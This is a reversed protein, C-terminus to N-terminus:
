AAVEAAEHQWQRAQALACAAAEILRELEHPALTSSYTFGGSGAWVQIRTGREDHRAIFSIEDARLAPAFEKSHETTRTMSDERDIDLV